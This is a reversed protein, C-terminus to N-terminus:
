GQLLKDLEVKLKEKPLKVILKLNSVLVDKSLKLVGVDLDLLAKAHSETDVHVLQERDLFAAVFVELLQDVEVGHILNM